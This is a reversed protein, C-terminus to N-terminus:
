MFRYRIWLRSEPFTKTIDIAELVYKLDNM